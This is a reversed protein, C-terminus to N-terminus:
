NYFQSFWLDMYSYTEPCCVKLEAPELIYKTFACAFYEEEDVKHYGERTNDISAKIFSDKEKEFIGCSKLIGSYNYMSGKDLAHGVEHIITFPIDAKNARIEILNKDNYTIGAINPINNYEISDVLRIEYGCLFGLMIEIPIKDLYEYLLSVYSEDYSGTNITFTHRYKDRSSTTTEEQTPEEQIYIHIVEPKTTEEIIETTEVVETPETTVQTTEKEEISGWSQSTEKIFESTTEVELAGKIEGATETVDCSSVAKSSGWSIGFIISIMLISVLITIIVTTKRYM